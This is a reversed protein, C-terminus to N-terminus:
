RQLKETIYNLDLNLYKAIFAGIDTNEHNGRLQESQHGYAYQHSNTEWLMRAIFSDYEIGSKGATSLFSVEDASPDTIGLWQPIVTGKVFTAYDTGNYTSLFHGLVVTSNKVNKLASPTWKYEPYGQLEHAVSLGGTEHDSTSIMVTNDHTSVWKMVADIARNYELIEHLHAAPDNSHAAMDIRSGEIMIFYGKDSKATAADLITLAKIAMETLSPEVASDRDIDYNMHDPTFLAMIPLESAHGLGDFGSRDWIMKWGIAQALMTLDEGDSRCSGPGTRPMFHCAGGGFMLDVNRGLSYNGIQQTAIEDEFDRHIVHSSFSAPTAHTIRSTAVLGTLYGNAKAAELITGCPLKDPFVGIAGNYSKAACSFATAGAASDTVFSDSSRTRSSGVLITDLPLQTYYPLGNAYANYNRALTQSAPGFGDSIMMIVNRKGGQKSGGAVRISCVIAIAALGTLILFGSFIPLCKRSLPKRCSIRLGCCGLLTQEQQIEPDHLLPHTSSPSLNRNFGGRRNMYQRYTRKKEINVAGKVNGVVKKQKTTDFNGFGMMKQMMETLDGDENM